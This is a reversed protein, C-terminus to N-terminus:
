RKVEKLSALRANTEKLSFRTQKASLAGGASRTVVDVPATGGGDVCRPTADTDTESMQEHRVTLEWDDDPTYVYLLEDDPQALVSGISASTEDTIGFQEALEHALGFTLSGEGGDSWEECEFVHSHANQWGFASQIIEHLEAFTAHANVQLGRWVRPRSDVLDIRLQLLTGLPHENTPVESPEEDEPEMESLLPAALVQLSDAILARLGAPVLYRVTGDDAPTAELIGAIQLHELVAQTRDNGGERPGLDGITQDLLASVAANGLGLFLAPRVAVTLQAILHMITLLANQNESMIEEAFWQELYVALLDMQAEVRGQTGTARWHAVQMGPRLTADTTDIMQLDVLTRWWIALAPVASLSGAEHSDAPDLGILAAVTAIDGPQLDGDSTLPRGEGIWDLLRDLGTVITLAELAPWLESERLEPVDDLSALLTPMLGGPFAEAQAIVEFSADIEADSARWQGTEDLFELYHLLTDFLTELLPGLKFVSEASDLLSTLTHATPNALTLGHDLTHSIGFLVKLFDTIEDTAQHEALRHNDDTDDLRALEDATLPVPAPGGAGLDSFDRRIALANLHAIDLTHLEYWAPFQSPHRSNIGRYQPM